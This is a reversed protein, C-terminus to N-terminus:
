PTKAKRLEEFEKAPDFWDDNIIHGIAEVRGWTARVRINCGKLKGWDDVGAIQLVRYVWHGCYNRPDDHATWGKPAYLLYGGFGQGSGGYNLHLWASLGRETGFTASEIVANKIEPTDSM